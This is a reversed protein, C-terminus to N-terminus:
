VKEPVLCLYFCVQWLVVPNSTRGAPEEAEYEIPPPIIPRTADPFTALNPKVSGNETENDGVIVITTKANEKDVVTEAKKAPQTLFPLNLQFKPLLSLLNKNDQKETANEANEAM